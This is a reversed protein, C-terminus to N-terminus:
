VEWMSGTILRGRSMMILGLLFWVHEAGGKAGKVRMSGLASHKPLMERQILVNEM